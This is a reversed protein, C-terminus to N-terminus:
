ACVCVFGALIFWDVLLGVEKDAIMTDTTVAGLVHDHELASHIGSGDFLQRLVFDGAIHQKM